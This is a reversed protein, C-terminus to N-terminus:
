RFARHLDAPHDVRTIEDPSVEECRRSMDESTRHDYPFDFYRPGAAEVALRYAASSYPQPPMHVASLPIGSPPTYSPHPHGQPSSLPPTYAGGSHAGLPPTPGGPHGYGPPTPAGYPSRQSVMMSDVPTSHPAAPEHPSECQYNASPPGLHLPPGSSSDLSTQGSVPVSMASAQSMPSMAQTMQGVGIYPNSRNAFSKKKRATTPTGNADSASQAARMDLEWYSGKGPDDKSRAVKRFCKNLSLNHRISNKWGSGAEKYFPFNLCIWNYIDALTMKKTPSSNIAFSILTSYSYPPKRLHSGGGGGATGGTAVSGYPSGISVGPSGSGVLGSGPRYGASLESHRGLARATSRDESLIHTRSTDLHNSSPSMDIRGGGGADVPGKLTELHGSAADESSTRGVPGSSNSNSNSNSDIAKALLRSNNNSGANTTLNTAATSRHSLSSSGSGASNNYLTDSSTNRSYDIGGGGDGGAGRHGDTSSNSSDVSEFTSGYAAAPSSVSRFDRYHTAPNWLAPNKQWEKDGVIERPGSYPYRDNAWYRVDAHPLPSPSQNSSSMPPTLETLSEAAWSGHDLQTM